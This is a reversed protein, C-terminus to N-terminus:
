PSSRRIRSLNHQLQKRVLAEPHKKSQSFISSLQIKPTPHWSQAEGSNYETPLGDMSKTEWNPNRSYRMRPLSKNITMEMMAAVTGSKEDGISDFVM